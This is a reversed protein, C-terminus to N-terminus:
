PARCRNRVRVQPKDAEPPSCGLSCGAAAGCSLPGVDAGSLKRSYSEVFEMAEVVKSYSGQVTRSSLKRGHEDLLCFSSVRRHVDLGVYRM